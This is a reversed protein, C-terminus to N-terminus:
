SKGVVWVVAECIARAISPPDGLVVYTKLANGNEVQGLRVCTNGPWYCIELWYGRRVIEPLIDRLCLDLKERWQPLWTQRTDDPLTWYRPLSYDYHQSEKWGLMRAIQENTLDTTAKPEM